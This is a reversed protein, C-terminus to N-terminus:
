HAPVAYGNATALEVRLEAMREWLLGNHERTWDGGNKVQLGILVAKRWVAFAGAKKARLPYEDLIEVLRACDRRNQVQWAFQAHNTRGDSGPQKRHVRGVGTTAQIEFLVEGDDERLKVICKTCYSQHGHEANQGAIAFTGEGAIFGALWHGFNASVEPYPATQM